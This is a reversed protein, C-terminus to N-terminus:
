KGGRRQQYVLALMDEEYRDDTFECLKKLVLQKKGQLKEMERKLRDEEVELEKLDKKLQEAEANRADLFDYNM